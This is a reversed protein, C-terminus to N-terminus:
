PALRARYFNQLSNTVTLDTFVARGFENTLTGLSALVTYIGPPGTLTFEFTGDIARQGSVLSVAVPYTYVLTGQSRFSAVEDALGAAALQESLVFIRLPPRNFDLYLSTLSTLGAPLTLSTFQNGGLSLTTLNTLGSLFSFNTLQNGPLLLTTM